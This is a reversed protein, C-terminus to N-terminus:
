ILESRKQAGMFLFFSWTSFQISFELCQQQKVTNPELQVLYGKWLPNYSNINYLFMILFELAQQTDKKTQQQQNWFSLRYHPWPSFDASAGM